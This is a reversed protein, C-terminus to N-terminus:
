SLTLPLSRRSLHCFLIYSSYRENKMPPSITIILSTSRKCSIYHINITTFMYVSTLPFDPRVNPNQLLLFRCCSCLAILGSSPVNSYFWQQPPLFCSSCCYYLPSKLADVTGTFHHDYRQWPVCWFCLSHRLLVVIFIAPSKAFLFDRTSTRQISVVYSTLNLYQSIIFLYKGSYEYFGNFLSSRM